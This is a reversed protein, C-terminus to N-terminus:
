TARPVVSILTFWCTPPDIPAASMATIRVLWNLRLGASIAAFSVAPICGTVPLRPRGTSGDATGRGAMVGLQGAM